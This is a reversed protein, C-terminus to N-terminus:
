PELLNARLAAVVDDGIGLGDRLYGAMGGYLRDVETFATELYDLRAELLPVLVTPDSVRGNLMSVVSEVTGRSLENTRLYDAVITERDV